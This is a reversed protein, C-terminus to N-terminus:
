VFHHFAPVSDQSGSWCCARFLAVVHSFFMISTSVHFFVFGRVHLSDFSLYPPKRFHPYGLDDMKIPSGMLWGPILTGGNISVVMHSRAM